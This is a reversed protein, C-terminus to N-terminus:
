EGPDRPAREGRAEAEWRDRLDAIRPDSARRELAALVRQRASADLSGWAAIEDITRLCGQCLASERDLECLGICPSPVLPESESTM